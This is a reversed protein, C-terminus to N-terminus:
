PRRNPPAPLRQVQSLPVAAPACPESEARGLVVPLLAAQWRQVLGRAVAAGAVLGLLAALAAAGDGVAQMPLAAALMALLPLGYAVWAARTLASRDVGVRVTDGLVLPATGAQLARAARWRSKPMSTSGGSGCATRTACSGCAAPAMTALWVHDGDVAVVRAQGEIMSEDGGGAVHHNTFAKM